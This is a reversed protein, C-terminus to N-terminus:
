VKHTTSKNLNFLHKLRTLYDTKTGTFKFGAAREHGGGDFTQAAQRASIQSKDTSRFSGKWTDPEFERAFGIIQPEKLHGLLNTLRGLNLEEYPTDLDALDKHELIAQLFAIKQYWTLNGLIEGWVQITEKGQAHMIREIAGDLDGGRKVLEGFVEYTNPHIEHHFHYTDTIMGAILSTAAHPPIEFNMEDLLHFVMESTSSVDTEIWHTGKQPTEQPHHDINLWSINPNAILGQPIDMRKPDGIDLSIVGDIHIPPLGSKKLHIGPISTLSKSIPTNSFPTIRYGAATLSHYLGFMAGLGDEDAGQHTVLLIRQHETLWRIAQHFEKSKRIQTKM